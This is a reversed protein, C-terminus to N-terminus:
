KVLWLTVFALSACAGPICLSWAAVPWIRLKVEELSM